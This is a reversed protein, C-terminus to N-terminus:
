YNDPHALESEVMLRVLEEFSTSAEWGLLNKAKSPDGVLLDVDAPRVFRADQVVYNRYDMGVVDFALETFRRVSQTRGTALIYDEPTDHQLMLWM